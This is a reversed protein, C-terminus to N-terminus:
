NCYSRRRHTKRRGYAKTFHDPPHDVEEASNDKTKYRYWRVRYLTKGNHVDHDIIKNVVNEVARNHSAEALGLKTMNNDTVDTRNNSNDGQTMLEETRTAILLWDILVISDIANECIKATNEWIEKFLYPSLNRAQLSKPPDNVLNSEKAGSPREVYVPYGENFEPERRM